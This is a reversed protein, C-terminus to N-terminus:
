FKGKQRQHLIRLIYVYDNQAEYYITHLKCFFKYRKRKADFLIGSRDGTAIMRIANELQKTYTNAKEKSWTRFGYEWISRMDLKADTSLRYSRGM